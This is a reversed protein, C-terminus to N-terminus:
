DDDRRSAYWGASYKPYSVTREGDRRGEFDNEGEQSRVQILGAKVAVSPRASALESVNMRPRVAVTTVDGMGDKYVVEQADGSGERERAAAVRECVCASACVCSPELVSDRLRTERVRACELCVGLLASGLRADAIM